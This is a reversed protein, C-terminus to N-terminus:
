VALREPGTSLAILREAVGAWTHHRLVHARGAAGMARAAAPDRALAALAAALAAPDDPACLLGTEGPRVLTALDGVRSAVVPLGAAMYEYIKLPSFYFPQDSAYPAVAIDMRALWGPVADPAVAGALEPDLGALDPALRPLDAPDGVILLRAEPFSERLRAMARALTGIDHWPRPTGLFGITLRGEPRSVPPFRDPNVANPIVEVARAGHARAYDAVPGSVASVLRAARMARTVSATAADPLALVRHRRAEETLPANVELVGPIGLRAAEEMAAHAHLAHREYVLDFPGAARLARALPANLALQARARAAADARAERPIAPLHATRVARYEAPPAGIRPSFLTVAHGQALFAAIMERAHVSAGKLGFIEIGPDACVYAIRM